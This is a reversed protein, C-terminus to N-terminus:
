WRRTSFPERASQVGSAALLESTRKAMADAWWYASSVALFAGDIEHHMGMFSARCKEGVSNLLVDVHSSGFIDVRLALEPIQETQVLQIDRGRPDVQAVSWCGIGVTKFYKLKRDKFSPEVTAATEVAQAVRQIGSNATMIVAVKSPLILGAM